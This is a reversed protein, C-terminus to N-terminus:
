KMLERLFVTAYSGKQLSFEFKLKMRNPFLDDDVLDLIRLELPKVTLPRFSGKFKHKKLLDSKFIELDFNEQKIFEKFLEKM